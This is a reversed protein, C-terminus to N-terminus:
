FSELNTRKWGNNGKVYLYNDDRTIEGTVGYIDSSSTPTYEIIVNKQNELYNNNLTTQGSSIEKIAEVLLATVNDYHVGMYNEPTNKNVYTLEPIINNVEQAIFGVHNETDGTRWKYYVGRLNKIKDLASDITVIDKKLREDSASTSLEGTSTIYLSVNGSSTSGVSRFRANGNVDLRETPTDNNIAVYGSTAGSGQIHIDPTNSPSAGGVQGVYFRIYDPTIKGVKGAKIINLGNSDYGSYLQDDNQAGYGPYTTESSGRHGIGVGTTGDGVNITVLQTNAGIVNLAGGASSQDFTLYSNSKVVHLKATPSETGIGVNGRTSGSGQIHIDATNSSTATQGAYFRIYHPKNNTPSTDFQSINLGNAAASSAIFTDGTIGLGQMYTTNSTNTGRVGIGIDVVGDTLVYQPSTNTAGSHIMQRAGNFTGSTTPIMYFRSSNGLIDIVYDPSKNVGLKSDTGGTSVIMNPVYVTDSTSATINDGGIIVSNDVNNLTHNRGGLIASTNSKEINATRVGLITLYSGTLVTIESSAGIITYTNRLYSIEESSLTTTNSNGFIGSLNVDRSGMIVNGYSNAGSYTGYIYAQASGIISNRSTYGTIGSDNSIDILNLGSTNISNYNGTINTNYIDSYSNRISSMINDGILVNISNSIESNTSASIISDRSNIIYEFNNTDEFNSLDFHITNGSGGIIFSNAHNNIINNIGGLLMNLTNGSTGGSIINNIGAFIGSYTSGSIINNYGGSIISYNSVGSLTHSGIVDYIANNNTSGTTFIDSAAKSWSGVGNSDSTLVYGPTAGSTIQITTTKTRGNVELKETPTITGIGINGSNGSASIFMRAIDNTKFLTGGTITQNTLTINDDPSNGYGFWGKRGASYGEPYFNMYVHDTGELTLIGANGKIHLTDKPDTTGIGINGRTAGSGQIHLDPQSTPTVGAYFRIYDNTTSSLGGPSSIINLGNSLVSSYVYSDGTAGFNTVGTYSKGVVGMRLLGVDTAAVDVYYLGNTKGSLTLNQSNTTDDYILSSNGDQSLVEFTYSPSTNIGLKKSTSGSIITDDHMTIPSCGFVNTVYLDTICNGSGGSFVFGSSPIWEAMGDSDVSSLLYGISAGSTITLRNVTLREDVTANGKITLWNTSGKYDLTNASYYDVRTDVYANFTTPTSASVNNFFYTIQYGSYTLGVLHEDIITSSTLDWIPGYTQIYNSSTGTIVSTLGSTGSIIRSDTFASPNVPTIGFFTTGTTGSYGSTEGTVVNYSTLITTGTDVGSPFGSFPIGFSVGGDFIATHGSLIKSQRELDLKTNFNIM